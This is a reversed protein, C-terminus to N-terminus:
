KGKGKELKSLVSLKNTNVAARLMPTLDRGDIDILGAAGEGEELYLTMVDGNPLKIDRERRRTEPCIQVGERFTRM